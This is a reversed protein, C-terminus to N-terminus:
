STRKFCYQLPYSNAIVDVKMMFNEFSDKNLMNVRTHLIPETYISIPVDHLSMYTGSSKIAVKGMSSRTTTIIRLDLDDMVLKLFGKTFDNYIQDVTKDKCTEHILFRHDMCTRFAYYWYKQSFVIYIEGLIPHETTKFNHFEYIVGNFKEIGKYSYISTLMNSDSLKYTNKMLEDIDKVIKEIDRYKETRSLSDHRADLYIYSPWEGFEERLSFGIDIDAVKSEYEM